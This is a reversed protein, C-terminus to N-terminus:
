SADPDGFESLAWPHRQRPRQHTLFWAGLRHWAAQAIERDPRREEDIPIGIEPLCKFFDRGSNFYASWADVEEAPSSRVKAARRKTPM